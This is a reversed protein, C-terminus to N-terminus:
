KTVDVDEPFAAKWANFGGVLINTNAQGYGLRSIRGPAIRHLTADNGGYIWIPKNKDPFAIQVDRAFQGNDSATNAITATINIAGPIHGADYDAKSRFDLIQATGFGGYANIYDKFGPATRVDNVPGLEEEDGSGKCSNVSLVLASVCLLLFFSKLTKM